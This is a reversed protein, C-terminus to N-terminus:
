PNVGEACRPPSFGALECPYSLTHSLACDLAAFIISVSFSLDTSKPNQGHRLTLIKNFKREPPLSNRCSHVATHIIHLSFVM